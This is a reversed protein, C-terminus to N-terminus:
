CKDWFLQRFQQAITTLQDCGLQRKTGKIISQRYENVFVSDKFYLNTTEELYITFTLWHLTYKM